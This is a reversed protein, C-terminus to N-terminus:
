YSALCTYYTYICLSSINIILFNCMENSAVAMQRVVGPVRRERRDNELQALSEMAKLGAPTAAWGLGLINAIMNTSIYKKAEHKKPLDPFLFSLIPDMKEAMKQILGAEQAIRMIGSWLAIVGAMSLSLNVAEKGSDLIADTVQSINGTCIGYLIGVLIMGGWLYNMCQRRLRSKEIM